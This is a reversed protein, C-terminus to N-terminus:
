FNTPLTCYHSVFSENILSIENDSTTILNQVNILNQAGASHENRLSNQLNILEKSNFEQFPFDSQADNASDSQVQKNFHHCQQHISHSSPAENQAQNDIFHEGLQLNCKACM